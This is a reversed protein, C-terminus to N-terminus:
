QYTNEDYVLRGKFRVTEIINACELWEGFIQLM